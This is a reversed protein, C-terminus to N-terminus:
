NFNFVITDTITERGEAVLAAPFAPLQKGTKLMLDRVYNVQKRPTEAPHEIGEVKLTGTASISFTIKLTHPKFGAFPDSVPGAYGSFYISQAKTTLERQQIGNMLSWVSELYVYTPSGKPHSGMGSSYNEFYGAETFVSNPNRPSSCGFFACCVLAIVSGIM